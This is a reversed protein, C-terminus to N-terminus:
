SQLGPPWFTRGQLFLFISFSVLIGALKLTDSQWEQITFIFFQESMRSKYPANERFYFLM